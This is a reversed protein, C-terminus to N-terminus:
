RVKEIAKVMEDDHIEVREPADAAPAYVAPQRGPNVREIAALSWHALAVDRHDTVTLSADGLGVVVDRRQADQAPYWVATAELRQYDTLATM